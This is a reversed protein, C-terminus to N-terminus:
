RDPYPRLFQVAPSARHGRPEQGENDWVFGSGAGAPVEVGEFEFWSKRVKVNKINSVFVVSQVTKSFVSISNKVSEDKISELGDSTSLLKVTGIAHDSSLWQGELLATNIAGPLYVRGSCWDILPNIQKLWNIGLVIDVEHLLKTVTLDSYSTVATLTIPAGQVMGRSLARAGNGLELFTDHSKCMLGAITTCEPTVFSRTAGSDILATFIKGNIRAPVVLLIGDSEVRQIKRKIKADKTGVVVGTFRSDARSEQPKEESNKFKEDKVETSARGRQRWSQLVSFTTTLRSANGDEIPNLQRALLGEVLRKDRIVVRAEREKM